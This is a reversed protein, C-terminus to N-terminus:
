SYELTLRLSSLSYLAIPAYADHTLVPLQDPVM